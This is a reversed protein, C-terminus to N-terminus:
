AKRVSVYVDEVWGMGTPDHKKVINPDKQPILDGDRYGFDKAHRLNKARHGIGHFTLICDQRVVRNTLHLKAKQPRPLDKMYNPDNELIVMDGEKLGLKRGAEPNMWICEMHNRVTIEKMVPNNIFNPDAHMHWPARTILLSFKYDGTSDHWRKAWVPLPEHGVQSFEDIYMRVRGKPRGYGIEEIQKYNEYPKRDIWFAGKKNFDAANEAAGMNKVAVDGMNTPILKKPDSSGDTTWYKPAMALGIKAAFGGWGIQDGPSKQVPVGGALCPYKPYYLRLDLKGEEFQHPAPIVYDCFYGLDDLYLNWDVVMQMKDAAKELMQPQIMAFLGRHPNRFFVAKARNTKYLGWGVMGYHGPASFDKKRYIDNTVPFEDRFDVSKAPQEPYPVVPPALEDIWPIKVGHLLLIGGEHDISGSLTNLINIAHRLRWSNAYNPGAADRKYTPVMSYPAAAAFELAIRSIAKAPVGSIRAAWESTYTSTTETLIQLVPKAVITKGGISVKFPGSTLVPADCDDIPEAKRHRSCWALFQGDDTKLAVRGNVDVLATADSYKKVFSANYKKGALITRIMALAVALDTGPKIGYTESAYGDAMPTRVPNFMVIKCGNRKGAAWHNLMGAKGCKSFSDFGFWVQYKSKDFDYGCVHHSPTYCSSYFKNPPNTLTLCNIYYHTGFCETRQDSRTAGISQCLRNTYPDGPSAFLIEEPKLKKLGAIVENVADATKMTIWGPDVDTGKVPNTRKLSVMLRDPDYLSDVFGMGKICFKGNSVPDEPRGELTIARELGTAPDVGMVVYYACDAECARACVQPVKKTIRYPLQEQPHDGFAWASQLNRFPFATMATAIGIAGTMQLFRRRPMEFKDKM